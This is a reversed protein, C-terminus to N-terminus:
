ILTFIDRFNMTKCLIKQTEEVNVDAATNAKEWEVM